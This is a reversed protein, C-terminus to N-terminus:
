NVEKWYCPLVLLVLSLYNFTALKRTIVPHWVRKSTPFSSGQQLGDPQDSLDRDLRAPLQRRFDRQRHRHQFFFDHRYSSRIPDDSSPWVTMRCPLKRGRYPIEMYVLTPPTPFFQCYPGRRAASGARLGEAIYVGDGGLLRSGCTRM